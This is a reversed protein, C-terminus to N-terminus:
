DRQTATHTKYNLKFTDASTLNYFLQLKASSWATQASYKLENQSGDPRLLVGPNPWFRIWSWHCKYKCTNLINKTKIKLILSANTHDLLVTKNETNQQALNQQTLIGRRGSTNIYYFGFWFMSKFFLRGIYVDYDM